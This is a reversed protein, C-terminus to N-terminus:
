QYKETKESGEHVKDWSSHQIEHRMGFVDVDTHLVFMIQLKRWNSDAIVIREPLCQVVQM